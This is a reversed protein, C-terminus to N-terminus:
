RIGAHSSSATCWTLVMQRAQAVAIREFAVAFEHSQNLRRSVSSPKGRGGDGRVKRTVSLGAGRSALTAVKILQSSWGAM